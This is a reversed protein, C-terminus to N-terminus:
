SNNGQHVAGRGAAVRGGEALQVVQEDVAHIAVQIEAGTLVGLGLVQGLLHKEFGPLRDPAIAPLPSRKQGPQVAEGLCRGVVDSV